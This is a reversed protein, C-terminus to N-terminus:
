RDRLRVGHSKIQCAQNYYCCTQKAGRQGSPSTVPPLPTLLQPPGVELNPARPNETEAGEEGCAM